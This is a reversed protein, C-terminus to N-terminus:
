ARHAPVLCAVVAVSILLLVVLAYAIPDFPSLGFLFSRLLRSFAAGGLAAGLTVLWLGQLLILRLADRRSAGLAMRIGIERTRETVAYAMVGYIGIAALLLALLGLGSALWARERISRIWGNDAVVEEMTNLWLRLVPELARAEARIAAKMEEANSSSRVLLTTDLWRRSEQPIYLYVPPINDIKDTQADHAVGIVRTTAFIKEAEDNERKEVRLLKGLPEEGPWLNRATTESVVVVDAGAQTEEATFDRGRVIPIGLVKFWDRGVDLYSARMTLGEASEKGPMTITLRGGDLPRDGASVSEVGPMAALRARLQQNFTQARAQDYGSLLATVM